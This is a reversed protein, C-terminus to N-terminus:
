FTFHKQAFQQVAAEYKELLQQLKQRAGAYAIDQRVRDILSLAEAKAAEEVTKIYEKAEDIASLLAIIESPVKTPSNVEVPVEVPTQETM